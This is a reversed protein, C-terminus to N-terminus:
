KHAIYCDLIIIQWEVTLLQTHTHKHTPTQWLTYTISCLSASQCRCIITGNFYGSLLEDAWKRFVAYQIHSQNMYYMHDIFYTENLTWYGNQEIMGESTRWVM